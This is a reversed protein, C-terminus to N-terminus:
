RNIECQVTKFSVLPNYIILYLYEVNCIRSLQRRLLILTKQHTCDTNLNYMTYLVYIQTSYLITLKDNVSILYYIILKTNNQSVCRDFDTNYKIESPKLFLWM